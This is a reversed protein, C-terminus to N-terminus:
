KGRKTKAKSVRKKVRTRSKPKTAPKEVPVLDEVTIKTPSVVETEQNLQNIKKIKLFKKRKAM